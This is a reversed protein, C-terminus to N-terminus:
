NRNLGMERSQLKLKWLGEMKLIDTESSATGAVELISVQYDSPDHSKLAVNGGHGTQIYDQWRAWFGGDGYAAGVYQEKTKPCTLLYVGRSSQLVSIWSKPLKKLKSLHQIFNLFGPFEPESFKTRLETILKNQKDARQIWACDGNGWDILLIGILDSLRSELVLDYFYCSGARDIGDRHPMPTDQELLRRNKVSYIGVFLTEDGPTGVFSAWNSAKLKSGNKISQTAQYLDFKDHDDRWLEYPSRGKEARNDKHRLLRVDGLDFGAEILISNFFIPM